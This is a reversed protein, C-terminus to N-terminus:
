KLHSSAIEKSFIMQNGIEYPHFLGSEGEMVYKGEKVPAVVCGPRLDEIKKIVIMDENLFLVDINFRMFFTHISNCPTFMISEHHPKKRFMYGALRKIFTDAFFMDSIMDTIVNKEIDLKCLVTKTM